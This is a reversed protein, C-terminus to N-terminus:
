GAQAKLEQTRDRFQHQYRRRYSGGQVLLETHTGQDVVRGKDIVIGRIALWGGLGCLIAVKLNSLIGTMPMVISLLYAALALGTGLAAVLIVVAL